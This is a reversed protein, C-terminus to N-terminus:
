YYVTKIYFGDTSWSDSDGKAKTITGAVNARGIVKYYYNQYKKLGSGNFSKLTYTNGTTRTMMKWGGTGTTSVWVEYDKMGTFKSWTLKVSNSSSNYSRDVYDATHLPIIGIFGTWSSWQGNVRARLKVATLVTRRGGEIKAYNGTGNKVYRISNGRRLQKKGDLTYVLYEFEEVKESSSVGSIVGVYCTTCDYVTRSTGNVTVTRTAAWSAFKAKITRAAQTKMAPVSSVVIAVALLAAMLRKIGKM